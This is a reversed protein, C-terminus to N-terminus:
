ELSDIVITTGEPTQIYQGSTDKMFSALTFFICLSLYLVALFDMFVTKKKLDLETLNVGQSLMYREKPTDALVGGDPIEGSRIQTFTPEKNEKEKKLKM